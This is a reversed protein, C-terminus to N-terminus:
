TSALYYTTPSIEIILLNRGSWLWKFVERRNDDEMIARVVAECYYFCWLVNRCLQHKLAIGALFLFSLICLDKSILKDPSLEEECIWGPGGSMRFRFILHRENFNLNLGTSIPNPFLYGVTSLMLQDFRPWLKGRIESLHTASCLKQALNTWYRTERHYWVYQLKSLVHVLVQAACWFHVGGWIDCMDRICWVFADCVCWLICWLVKRWRHTLLTWFCFLTESIKKPLDGSNAVSIISKVQCIWLWAFTRPHSCSGGRGGKGRMSCLLTM